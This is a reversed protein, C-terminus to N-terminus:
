ITSILETKKTKDQMKTIDSDVVVVKYTSQAQTTQPTGQTANNQTQENPRSLTPAQVSPMPANLIQKASSLAKTVTAIGSAIYGGLLFPAAPGGASAAATAGAIVNSIAKATNISLETIAFAKQLASGQKALGGLAGFLNATEDVLFRKSKALEEDLMKQREVSDKAIDGLNKEHTAKLVELQGNTLETNAKKQEYDLNELEIRKQQKLNFDNEASILEAELKARQEANDKDTKEKKQKTELADLQKQQEEKLAKEMEAFEAKKGYQLQLEELEIRHKERLALIERLNADEVNAINLANIRKQLERKERAYDEETKLKDSNSKKNDSVEKENSKKNLERMALKNGAQENELQLLIAKQERITELGKQETEKPDFLLSAEWTALKDNLNWDKGFVKGVADVTKLILSLPYQIGEIIGKLITQNRQTADVQAKLTSENQAISVKYAKIQQDTQLMKIKLIEQESKGQLKLINDQDNLSKKKDNQIQVNLEAQKNLKEQEKSVGSIARKIDDWYAVLAGLAVLLLGIGTAGIATKLANFARVGGTKVANFLDTADNRLEKMSSIGQTLAIAGQVKLMQKELEESSNGFLAQAGTIASFSGAIGEATRQFKGGFKEPDADNIADAVGRMQEKIQGARKAVTEFEKSAPDLNQLQITLEKLEKRLNTFSGSTKKTEKAVNEVSDGVKDIDSKATGTDVGVKFIIEEQAM